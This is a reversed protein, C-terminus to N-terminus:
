LSPRQYSERPQFRYKANKHRRLKPYDGPPETVLVYPSPLGLETMKRNLDLAHQVTAQRPQENPMLAAIGRQPVEEATLRVAEVRIRERQPPKEFFDITVERTLLEVLGPVLAFDAVSGALSLKVKARPLPHGGDVLRVLYVYFEPVILRMLDGFEPSNIALRQFNEELQQRLASIDEPVQLEKRRLHELRSHRM